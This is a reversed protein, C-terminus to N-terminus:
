ADGGLHAAAHRGVVSVVYRPDDDDIVDAEGPVAPPEAVADPRPARPEVCVPVGPYLLTHGEVLANWEDEDPPHSVVV